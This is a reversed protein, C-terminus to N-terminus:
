KDQCNEYYVDSLSIAKCEDKLLRNIRRVREKNKETKKIPHFDNPAIIMAVLSLYQDFSLQKFDKKFYANAGEQFGLIEKSQINGLYVTNIFIDLQTNKDVKSNFALAILSQKIKKYKLFGPSFGEPFFYIKVLGQTITTYGAGPSKLDVGNHEYFNPDEVKLLALRQEQSFDELRLTLKNSSYIKNVITQSDFYAKITIISFYIIPFVIVVFVVVLIKVLLKNSTKIKKM